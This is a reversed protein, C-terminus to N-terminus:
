NHLWLFCFWEQRFCFYWSGCWSWSVRNVKLLQYSILINDVMVSDLHGDGVDCIAVVSSQGLGTWDLECKWM